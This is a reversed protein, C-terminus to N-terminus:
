SQMSVHSLLVKIKIPRRKAKSIQKEDEVRAGISFACVADFLKREVMAEASNPVPLMYPGKLSDGLQELAVLGDALREAAEHQQYTNVASTLFANSSTTGGKSTNSTAGAEHLTQDMFSRQVTVLRERLDHNARLLSGIEAKLVAKQEQWSAALQSAQEMQELLFSMRNRLARTAEEAANRLMRDQEVNQPISRREGKPDCGPATFNPMGAAAVGGRLSQLAHLEANCTELKQSMEKKENRLKVVEKKLFKLTSQDSESLEVHAESKKKYEAVLASNEEAQARLAASEAEARQLLDMHLEVSKVLDRIRTQYSENDKEMKKLNDMESKSLVFNNDSLDEVQNRLSANTENRVQLANKLSKIEISQESLSKDHSKLLISQHETMSKFRRESDKSKELDKQLSGIHEDKKFIEAELVKIKMNLDKVDQMATRHLHSTYEQNSASVEMGEELGSNSARLAELEGKIDNVSSESAALQGELDSIKNRLEM